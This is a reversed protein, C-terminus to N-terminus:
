FDINPEDPENRPRLEDLQEAIVLLEQVHKAEQSQPPLLNLAERLSSLADDLYQPIPERRAMALLAEGLGAHSAAYEMPTQARTREKLARRYAMVAEKFCAVGKVAEGFQGTACLFNGQDLRADGLAHMVTAWRQPDKKRDYQGLQERLRNVRDRLRLGVDAQPAPANNKTDALLLELADDRKTMIREFEDDVAPKAASSKAATAAPRVEELAFVAPEAAGEKDTGEEDEDEEDDDDDDVEDADDSTEVKDASVSYVGDLAPEAPKVRSLAYAGGGGLLVLVLVVAWFLSGFTALDALSLLIIFACATGAAAAITVLGAANDNNETV